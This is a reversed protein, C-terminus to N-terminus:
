NMSIHACCIQMIQWGRVNIWVSVCVCVYLHEPPIIFQINYHKYITYTCQYLAIRIQKTCRAFTPPILFPMCIRRYYARIGYVLVYVICTHTWTTNEPTAINLMIRLKSMYFVNDRYISIQINTLSIIYETSLVCQQKLINKFLRWVYICAHM